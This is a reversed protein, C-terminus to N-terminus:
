ALEYEKNKIKYRLENRSLNLKTCQKIYYDIENNNKLLLLEIYHSWSLQAAVPQRKQFLYYKRM